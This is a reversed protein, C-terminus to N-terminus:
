SLMELLQRCLDPMWHWWALQAGLLQQVCVSSLELKPFDNREALSPPVGKRMFSSVIVHRQRQSESHIETKEGAKQSYVIKTDLTVRLVM